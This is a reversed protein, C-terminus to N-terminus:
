QKEYCLFQLIGTFKQSLQNLVLSNKDMIFLSYLNNPLIFAYTLQFFGDTIPSYQVSSGAYCLIGDFAILICIEDEDLSTGSVGNTM